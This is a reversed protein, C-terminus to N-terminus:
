LRYPDRLPVRSDGHGLSYAWLNEMSSLFYTFEMNENKESSALELGHYQMFDSKAELFTAPFEFNMNDEGYLFLKLSQNEDKALVNYIAPLMTNFSQYKHPSRRFKKDNDHTFQIKKERALHWNFKKEYEEDTMPFDTQSWQQLIYDLQRTILEAKYQLNKNVSVAEISLQKNLSTVPRKNCNTNCKSWLQNYIKEALEFEIKQDM